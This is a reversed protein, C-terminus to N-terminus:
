LPGVINLGGQVFVPAGASFTIEIELGITQGPTAYAVYSGMVNSYNNGTLAPSLWFNLSGGASGPNFVFCSGSYTVGSSNVQVWLNTQYLGARSATFLGTTPSFEGFNSGNAYGNNSTVNFGNTTNIVKGVGSSLSDTNHSFSVNVISKAPSSPTTTNLLGYNVVSLGSDLATGGAFLPIVNVTTQTGFTSSTVTSCVTGATQTTQIVRGESYTGTLNGAATPFMFQTGSVYTPTFGSAIWESVTSPSSGGGAGPISISDVPWGSQQVTNTPDFLALKYMAGPVAFLVAEGNADLVCPNAAPITCAADLYVAQPTTTGAAYTRLCYSAAPVGTVPAWCKLKPLTVLSAM